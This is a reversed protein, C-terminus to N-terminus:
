RELTRAQSTRKLVAAIEPHQRRLKYPMATRLANAFVWKLEANSESKFEEFLASWVPEGGDKVTLARIIVERVQEHHFDLHGRFRSIRLERLRAGWHRFRSRGPWANAGGRVM